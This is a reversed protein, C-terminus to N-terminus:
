ALVGPVHCQSGATSGSAFWRCADWLRGPQSLTRRTDGDHRKQMDPPLNKYAELFKKGQRWMETEAETHPRYPDFQHANYGDQLLLANDKRRKWVFNRVRSLSDLVDRLPVDEYACSLDTLDLEVGNAILKVGTQASLAHLTEGMTTARRKYTVRANLRADHALPDDQVSASNKSPTEISVRASSPAAQGHVQISCAMSYLVISCIVVTGSQKMNM